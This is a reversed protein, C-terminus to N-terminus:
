HPAEDQEALEAARAEIEENTMVGRAALLREFSELWQEYYVPETGEAEQRAITDILSDRFDSWPYLCRENLAVALGFVRGEWPAEFVLEGNKRPLAVSGQMNAIEPDVDSTSDPQANV